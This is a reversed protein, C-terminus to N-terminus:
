WDELYGSGVQLLAGEQVQCLQAPWSGHCRLWRLATAASHRCGNCGTNCCAGSCGTHEKASPAAGGTDPRQRQQQSKDAAAVAAALQSRATPLLKRAISLSGALTAVWLSPLHRRCRPLAAAQAHEFAAVAAQLEQAAAGPLAAPSAVAALMVWGAAARVAWYDSGQEAALDHARRYLALARRQARTDGRYSADAGLAAYAALLCARPSGPGLRLLAAGAAAALARLQLVQAPSAGGLRQLKQDDNLLSAAAGALVTCAALQLQRASLSLEPAGPPALAALQVDAAATWSGDALREAIAGLRSCAGLAESINFPRGVSAAEVREVAATYAALLSALRPLSDPLQLSNSHSSSRRNGNNSDAAAVMPLYARLHARALSALPPPQPATYDAAAAAAFARMVQRLPPPAAPPRAARTLPLLDQVQRLLAVSRLFAEAEPSAVAAARRLRATLHELGPPQQPPVPGTDLGTDAMTAM